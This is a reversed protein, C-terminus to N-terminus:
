TMASYIKSIKRDFQFKQFESLYFYFEFHTGFKSLEFSRFSFDWFEYIQIYTLFTFCYSIKLFISRRFRRLASSILVFIATVVMQQCSINNSLQLKNFFNQYLFRTVAQM